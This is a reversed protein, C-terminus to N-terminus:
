LSLGTVGTVYNINIHSPKEGQFTDIAEFTVPVKVGKYYIDCDAFTGNQSYVEVAIVWGSTGKFSYEFPATSSQDTNSYLIKPDSPAVSNYTAISIQYNAGAKTDVRVIGNAADSTPKGDATLDNKKCTIFFLSLIPILYALKKM